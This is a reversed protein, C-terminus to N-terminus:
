IKKNSEDFENKHQLSLFFHQHVCIGTVLVRAMVQLAGSSNNNQTTAAWNQVMKEVNGSCVYCLGAFGLGVKLLPSVPLLFSAPIGIFLLLIEIIKRTM